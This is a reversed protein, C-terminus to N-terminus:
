CSLRTYPCNEIKVIRPQANQYLVGCYAVLALALLATIIVAYKM